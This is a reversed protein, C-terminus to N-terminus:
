PLEQGCGCSGGKSRRSRKRKHSSRKHSSRKHSSRKHSSRKRSGGMAVNRMGTLPARLGATTAWDMVAESPQNGTATIAKVSAMGGRRKTRRHKM